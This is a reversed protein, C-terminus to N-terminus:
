VPRIRSIWSTFTLYPPLSPLHFPTASLINGPDM